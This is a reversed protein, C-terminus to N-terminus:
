DPSCGSPQLNTRLARHDRGCALMHEEPVELPNRMYVVSGNEFHKSVFSPSIANSSISKEVDNTARM